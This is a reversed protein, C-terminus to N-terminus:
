SNFVVAHDDRLEAFGYLESGGLRDSFQTRAFKEMKMNRQMALGFASKHFMLNKVAGGSSLVEPSVYINVGYLEGMRAKLIPSNEKSYAVSDARVFKDILLLDRKGAPKIVFSRDEMPARADDLYQIARLLNPDTLATGASGVSNTVGSHLGLLDQEVILGLAYGIKASYKQMLDYQSQAKLIDPVNITVGKWKNITITVETETVAADTLSGDNGIDSASLNSVLPIHIVDGKQAVDADHREILNAMVLKSERAIQCEKAWVEPIFVASTTTNFSAM